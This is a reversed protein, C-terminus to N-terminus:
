ADALWCTWCRQDHGSPIARPYTACCSPCMGGSTMSNDRYPPDPERPWNQEVCIACSATQYVDHEGARHRAEETARAQWRGYKTHPARPGM